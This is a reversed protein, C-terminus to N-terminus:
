RAKSYCERCRVPKDGSPKFPVQCKAGCDSCTADHMERPGRNFDRNNNRRFNGGSRQPRNKRFCDQCRVPKGETPKFPVECEAGCDSCTAKHMERDDQRPMDTSESEAPKKESETSTTTEEAPENEFTENAEEM